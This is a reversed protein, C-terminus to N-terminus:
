TLFLNHGPEQPGKCTIQTTLTPVQLGSLSKRSAEQPETLQMPLVVYAKLLEKM